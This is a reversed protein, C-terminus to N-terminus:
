CDHIYFLTVVERVPSPLGAIAGLLAAVQEREEARCDPASGNAPVGYAAELPLPAQPRQRLVRYAQHRV